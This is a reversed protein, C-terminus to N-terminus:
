HAGPAAHAGGRAGSQSGESLKRDDQAPPREVTVYYPVAVTERTIEAQHTVYRVPQEEAEQRYAYGYRSQYAQEADSPSIPMRTALGDDEENEDPADGAEAEAIMQKVEALSLREGQESREEIAEIV